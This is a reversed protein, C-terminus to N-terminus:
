FPLLDQKMSGPGHPLVPTVALRTRARGRASPPGWRGQEHRSSDKSSACHSAQFLPEDWSKPVLSGLCLSGVNGSHKPSTM